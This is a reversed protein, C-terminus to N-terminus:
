RRFAWYVWFSTRWISVIGFYIILGVFPLVNILIRIDLFGDVGLFFVLANVLLLPLLGYLWKRSILLYALGALYVLHILYNEYGLFVIANHRLLLLNVLGIASTTIIEPLTHYSFLYQFSTIRQGGASDKPYEELTPCGSCGTKKVQIFEYNRFWTAHLTSPYFYDNYLAKNHQLYPILLTIVPLTFALSRLVNTKHLFVSITVLIASFTLTELRCLALLGIITGLFLHHVFSNRFSVFLYNVLMLTLLSILEDRMGRVSLNQSLPHTSLFIGVLTAAKWGFKKYFIVYAAIIVLLSTFITVIRNLFEPNNGAVILPRLWLVFLPERSQTGLPGTITQALSLYSHADPETGTPIVKSLLAWRSSFGIYLLILLPAVIKKHPLFLLLGILIWFFFHDISPLHTSYETVTIPSVATSLIDFTICGNQEINRIVTRNYRVADNNDHLCYELKKEDSKLEVQYSNSNSRSVYKGLEVLDVRFSWVLAIIYILALKLSQSTFFKM